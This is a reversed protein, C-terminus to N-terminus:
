ILRVQFILVQNQIGSVEVEQLPFRVVLLRLTLDLTVLPSHTFAICSSLRSRTVFLGAQRPSFM